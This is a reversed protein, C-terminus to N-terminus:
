SAARSGWAALYLPDLIVLAPRHAVLLDAVEGMHKRDGLHPVRFCLHMDLDRLDLGRSRAIAVLRRHMKREGGEGLFILVPGPREVRYFGLWDTQSSVSVAADLILFTKGAKDQAGIVGYADEPWIKKMLFRPSPASRVRADLEAASMVPLKRGDRDKVPTNEEFVQDLDIKEVEDLGWGAELHDSIDKGEKARVLSLHHVLNGDLSDMVTMAHMLGPPDDDMVVIVEAAGYLSRALKKNWKGAGGPNCTAVEGLQRLSEVDKEGEVVWIRQKEKVADRVESCRYLVPTVGQLNWIWGGEGDPQRQRFTKGGNAPEYRCVQFRLQGYDYYEYTTVIPGLDEISRRRHEGKTRTGAGNVGGGSSFLATMPLELADMIEQIECGAHCFMLVTGDEGESVSLSPNRDDHAPCLAAYGNGSPRPNSGVEDLADLVQNLGGSGNNVLLRLHRYGEWGSLVATGRVGNVKVKGNTSM